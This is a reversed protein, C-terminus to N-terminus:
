VAYLPSTLANHPGQNGIHAQFQCIKFVLMSPRVFSTM